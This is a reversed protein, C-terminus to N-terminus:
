PVVRQVMRVVRKIAPNDFLRPQFYASAVQKNLEFLTPYPAVMQTVHSLKMRRAIVLSWLAILEGADPGYITVGVPRGGVVMLRVKGSARGSAIARDNEGYSFHVVELYGEHELRAEDETMGVQAIQPDTYTVRPIHATRQRSPLGFLIQRVVIGAQYGAMHTFQAGGTIDGIAYIRRNSTRLGGNTHIGRADHAVHAADLHLAQLAPRRGTAVLLHSGSFERGDEAHLTIGGAGKRVSAIRVGEVLAVGERRLRDIVVDAAQRNERALVRDAEFVTVDCGLRAHAQAMEMGIPGGGLIMLHSPASTLDFLTENTLYPVDALGPIDPVAPSAGTAIVFRRATVLTDGAQVAKRSVFHAEARIVTCGLKEFREQSDHPAITDIASRVHAMVAAYDIQPVHAAIGLKGSRMDQARMAAALLAKSPVCGYNLCDGGMEGREILVVKAGMQAAGSAVSLGGAGAGIVCIDTSIHNM